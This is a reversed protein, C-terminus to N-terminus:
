CYKLTLRKAKLYVCINRGRAYSYYFSHGMRLTTIRMYTNPLVKLFIFRFTYQWEFRRCKFDIRQIKIPFECHIYFPTVRRNNKLAAMSKENKKKEKKRKLFYEIVIRQAKLPLLRQKFYIKKVTRRLAYKRPSFYFIIWKKFTRM